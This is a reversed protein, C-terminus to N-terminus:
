SFLREHCMMLDISSHYQVLDIVCVAACHSQTTVHVGHLPAQAKQEGLM